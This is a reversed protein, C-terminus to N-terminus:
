AQFQKRVIADISEIQERDHPLPHHLLKWVIIEAIGMDEEINRFRHTQWGDCSREQKTRVGISCEPCGEGNAVFM